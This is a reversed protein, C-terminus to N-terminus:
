DVWYGIKSKIKTSLIATLLVLICTSLIVVIFSVLNVNGNILGSRFFEIYHYLLNPQVLLIKDGLQDVEWIIPTFFFLIGFFVNITHELDRFKLCLSAFMFTICFNSIFFLILFIFCIFISGFHLSGSIALVIIIVPLNLLLTVCNKYASAICLVYPHIYINKILNTYTFSFLMNADTVSSLITRWLTFGVYLYTFFDIFNKNWLKSWLFALLLLLFLSGFIEWLPGLVTRNFRARIRSQALEFWLDYNILSKILIKLEYAM